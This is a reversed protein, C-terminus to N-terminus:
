TPTAATLSILLTRLRRVADPSPPPADRDIIANTPVLAASVSRELDESRRHADVDGRQRGIADWMATARKWHGARELRRALRATAFPDNHRSAALRQELRQTLRRVESSTDSLAALAIRAEALRDAQLLLSATLTGLALNTPDEPLIQNLLTLADDRRGAMAYVRALLVQASRLRPHIRLGRQLVVTAEELRGRSRLAEGLAVFQLSTPNARLQRKLRRIEGEDIIM